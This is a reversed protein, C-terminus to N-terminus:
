KIAFVAVNGKATQVMVKEQVIQPALRIASGDTEARGLFSGDEASLLHVVGEYDGVLVFNGVVTPATVARAYLRAQKWLNRGSQKDYAYM